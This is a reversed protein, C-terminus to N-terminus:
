RRKRVVRFGARRTPGDKAVVRAIVRYRGPRLTRGRLRGSFRVTTTGARATRTISGRVRVFRTCRKRGRTKRTPAACRKGVRRGSKARHFTLRVKAARNLRFSIRARNRSTIRWRTPRMRLSTLRLAPAAAPPAAAPPAASAPAAPLEVAGADCAAGQPRAAGRQDTAGAACTPDADVAPSTAAPLWTPTTGGHAGFALLGLPATRDGAGVLGCAPDGTANRGLSGIPGACTGIMSAHATIAGRLDPAGVNGAVTTARLTAAGQEAAVGAGDPATNGAITTNHAGLTAAPNGLYVGGGKGTASNGSITSDFLAVAGSGADIAGGNGSANGTFAVRTATLAAGAGFLLVGSNAQAGTVTLGTLELHANQEVLFVRGDGGSVERVITTRADPGVIAVQENIAIILDDGTQDYTGAPLHITDKGGLAKADVIAQRLTCQGAVACNGLGPATSDVFLDAARAPAATVLVILLTLLTLRM